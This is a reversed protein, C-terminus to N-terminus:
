VRRSKLVRAITIVDIRGAGFSKMVKVCENVTAGTTMVDDILIVNSNQLKPRWKIRVDFAKHINERRKQSTLHGMSVTSKQRVLGDPMVPIKTIKSIAAALIGAQNYGRKILRGWHLPVPVIWDVDPLVDGAARVMSRAFFLVLDTGDGHKFRMLLDKITGDYAFPARLRDFFFPSTTCAACTVDDLEFPELPFACLICYPKEIFTITKFCDGCVGHSQSLPRHCAICLPPLLFSLLARGMM